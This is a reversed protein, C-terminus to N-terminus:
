AATECLYVISESQMYKSQCISVCRVIDTPVQTMVLTGLRGSKPPVTGIKLATNQTGGPYITPCM